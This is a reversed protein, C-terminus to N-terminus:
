NPEGESTEGGSLDVKRAGAMERWTKGTEVHVAECGNKAQWREITYKTNFSAPMPADPPLKRSDLFAPVESAEKPFVSPRKSVVWTLLRMMLSPKASRLEGVSM